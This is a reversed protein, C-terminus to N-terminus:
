KEDRLSVTLKKNEETERERERQREREREGRRAKETAHSAAEKTKEM